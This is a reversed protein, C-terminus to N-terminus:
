IEEGVVLACLPFYRFLSNIHKYVSDADGLNLRTKLEERFGYYANIYRKKTYRLHKELFKEFIFIPQSTSM